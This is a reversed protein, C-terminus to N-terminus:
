KLLEIMLPHRAVEDPTKGANNKIDRPPDGQLLEKVVLTFGGAIALHLGTNGASDQKALDAKLAVLKQTITVQGTQCAKMLPTTGQNNPENIDAGKEILITATSLVGRSCIWHFATNGADDKAAVEAGAELLMILAKEKMNNTAHHLANM